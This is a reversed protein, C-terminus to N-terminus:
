AHKLFKNAPKTEEKKPIVLRCRSAITLGLERADANCQKEAKIQMKQLYSYQAIQEEMQAEASVRSKKDPTFKIKSLQKTIKEYETQSRVYRALVDCDLNTMIGIDLLQEAIEEFREKEKKYLYSPPKIKDCPARVEAQKREEYEAKTM